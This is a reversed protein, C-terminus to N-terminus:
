VGDFVDMNQKGNDNFLKVAYADGSKIVAKNNKIWNHLWEDPRRSGIGQLGPGTLKQDDTRHCRSCNQKFIKAGDEASFSVSASFIFIFLLFTKSFFNILRSYFCNM